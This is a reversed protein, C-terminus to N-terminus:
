LDDELGDGRRGFALGGIIVGIGALVLPGLWLSVTGERTGQPEPRSGLFPGVGAILGAAGMMASALVTAGLLLDSILGPEGLEVVGAYLHEKALFGIFPPGGAMSIAALIGAAATFPMVRRLGSLQRVDRTGTQHDVAGAVMFLAGKYCAHAVLYVLSAVVAAQTGVGLLLMIAGLAAITTYALIRKLDTEFLSRYSGGLLTLIGATVIIGTWLTTGGLLPSMRAVLYIGAKVMTASHLYGSVPTPAEMANPLWFHFPFQASKTFAALLILLVIWSYSAAALLPEGSARLESLSTTGGNQWILVAAALLALGGGATVLLAQMASRRAESREHDFAILFYSTFGTLEWFVFLLLVNDSLVVGLMSGMFAFLTLQFRGALPHDGFYGVAYLVILTGIGTVLTAFLLGLGDFHFSLSLGLEPAWPASVTVPGDRSVVGFMWALYGTLAAPFLALVRAYRGRGGLWGAVPLLLYPALVVLVHLADLDM